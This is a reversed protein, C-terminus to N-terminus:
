PTCPVTQVLKEGLKICRLLHCSFCTTLFDPVIGVEPGQSRRLASGYRFDQSRRHSNGILRRINENGTKTCCFTYLAYWIKPCSSWNCNCWNGHLKLWLFLGPLAPNLPYPTSATAFPDMASNPVLANKVM